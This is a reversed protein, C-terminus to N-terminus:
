EDAYDWEVEKDFEYEPHEKLLRGFLQNLERTVEDEYQENCYVSLMIRKNM